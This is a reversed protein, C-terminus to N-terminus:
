KLLQQPGRKYCRRGLAYASRQTKAEANAKPQQQNCKSEALLEIGQLTIKKRKPTHLNKIQWMDAQSPRQTKTERQTEVATQM